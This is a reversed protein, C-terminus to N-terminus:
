RLRSLRIDFKNSERQLEEKKPAGGDWVDCFLLRGGRMELRRRETVRMVFFRMVFFCMASFRMASFRMASFCGGGVGAVRM